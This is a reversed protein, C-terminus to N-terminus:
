KVYTLTVAQYAFISFVSNHVDRYSELCILQSLMHQSDIISAVLSPVIKLHFMRFHILAALITM